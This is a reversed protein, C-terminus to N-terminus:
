KCAKGMNSGASMGKAKGISTSPKGKGMNGGFKVSKGMGTGQKM